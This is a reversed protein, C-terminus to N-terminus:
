VVEDEGLLARMAHEPHDWHVFHNGDKVTVLKVKRLPQGREKANEVESRLTLMAHAVEPLSRGGWVFRAEVDKWADMVGDERSEGGENNPLLLARHRISMFLGSQIGTIMIRSDLDGDAQFTMSAREAGSLTSLTPPPDDLPRVAITDLTGGHPYYSSIALARDWVDYSAAREEPPLRPDFARVYMDSRRPYGMVINGTDFVVVRRVYASLEVDNVPFTPAYALLSTMWLAGLSWGAVVIGGTNKSHQAPPIHDHRVLDELFDFVERARDRLFRGFRVGAKALMAADESDDPTLKAVMAREEDTYPTSGPYDRRNLLVLRTNYGSSAALPILRSFTGGHWNHGHLIVLTTFDTSDQPAGTDHFVGLRSGTSGDSPM